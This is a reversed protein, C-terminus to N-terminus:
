PYLRIRFWNSKFISFEGCFIRPCVSIKVAYRATRRRRSLTATREYIVVRMEDSSLQDLGLESHDTAAVAFQTAEYWMRGLEGGIVAFKSCIFHPWILHPANLSREEKVWRQQNPKLLWCSRERTVFGHLRVCGIFTISALQTPACKQDSHIETHLCLLSTTVEGGARHSTVQRTHRSNVRDM